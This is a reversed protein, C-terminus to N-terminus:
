LGMVIQAGFSKNLELEIMKHAPAGLEAVINTPGGVRDHNLARQNFALHCQFQGNLHLVRRGQQAVPEGTSGSCNLFSKPTPSTLM